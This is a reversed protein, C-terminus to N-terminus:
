IRIQRHNNMRMEKQVTSTKIKSIRSIPINRTTKIFTIVKETKDFNTVKKTKQNGYKRHVSIGFSPNLINCRKDYQTRMRHFELKYKLKPDFSCIDKFRQCTRNVSQLADDDLYRFIKSVIEAPLLRFPDSRSVFSKPLIGYGM